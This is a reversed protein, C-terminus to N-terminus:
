QECLNLCNYGGSPAYGAVLVILALYQWTREEVFIHGTTRM